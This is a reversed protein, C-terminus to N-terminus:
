SSRIAFRKNSAAPFATPVGDMYPLGVILSELEGRALDLELQHSRSPQTSRPLEVEVRLLVVELAGGGLGWHAVCIMHPHPGSGVMAVGIVFGVGLGTSGHESRSASSM